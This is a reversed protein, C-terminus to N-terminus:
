ITCTTIYNPFRTLVQVSQMMMINHLQIDSAPFHSWDLFLHWLHDHYRDTIYALSLIIITCGFM